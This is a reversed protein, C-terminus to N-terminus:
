QKSIPTTRASRQQQSRILEPQLPEYISSAQERYRTNMRESDRTTGDVGGIKRRKSAKMRGAQRMGFVGIGGEAQWVEAKKGGVVEGVEIVGGGNREGRRRANERKGGGGAM